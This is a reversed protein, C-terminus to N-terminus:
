RGTGIYAESLHYTCIWGDHLFPRSIGSPIGIAKAKFWSGGAGPLVMSRLGSTHAELGRARGEELDCLIPIEDAGFPYLSQDVFKTSGVVLHFPAKRGRLLSLLREVDM